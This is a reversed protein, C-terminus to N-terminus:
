MGFILSAQTPDLNYQDEVFKQGFTILGSTIAANCCHFLTLLIFVPNMFLNKLVQFNNVTEPQKESKGTDEGIHAESQKNARIEAAGIITMLLFLISIKGCMKNRKRM